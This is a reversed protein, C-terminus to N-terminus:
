KAVEMAERDGGSTRTHDFSYGVTHECRSIYAIGHLATCYGGTHPVTSEADNIGHFEV